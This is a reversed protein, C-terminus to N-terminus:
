RKYHTKVCLRKKDSILLAVWAKKENRNNAHSIKGMRKSEFVIDKSGFHTKKLISITIHSLLPIVTQTTCRWKFSSSGTSQPGQGERTPAISPALASHNWEMLLMQYFHYPVLLMRLAPQWMSVNALIPKYYLCFPSQSLSLIPPWGKRLTSKKRVWLDQSCTGSTIAQFQLINGSYCMYRVGESSLFETPLLVFGIRLFIISFRISIPEPM